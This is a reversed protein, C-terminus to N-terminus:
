DKLILSEWRRYIGLAVLVLILAMVKGWAGGKIWQYVAFEVCTIIVVGTTFNYMGRSYVPM